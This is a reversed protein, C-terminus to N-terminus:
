DPKIGACGSGKTKGTAGRLLSDIESIVFEPVNSQTCLCCERVAFLFGDINENRKKKGKEIFTKWHKSNGKYMEVVKIGALYEAVPDPASWRVLDQRDGETKVVRLRNQLLGLRNKAIEPDGLEKLLQNRATSAPFFHEKICLWATIMCYEQLDKVAQADANEPLLSAVYRLMLGPVNTPLNRTSPENKLNVMEQAFLKVFLPTIRRDHVLRKLKNCADVFEDQEFLGRDGSAFLFDSLFGYLAEGEIRQPCVTTKVINGLAENRRSTVVLAGILFKPSNPRLLGRGRSSMESYNDVIVLVRKQKLLQAFLDDPMDSSSGIVNKLKGVVADLFSDFGSGSKDLCADLEDEILVPIMAWPTLRKSGDPTMGWRGIQCALSTKGAGGEGSVLLVTTENKSFIPGLSAATCESASGSDISVALPIHIKREFVTELKEFRTQVEDLHREVFADLCDSHTVFNSRIEAPLEEFSRKGAAFERAWARRVRPRTAFFRWSAFALFVQLMWLIPKPIGEPQAYNSNSFRRYVSLFLVPNLWLILGCVVLYVIAVSAFVVLGIIIKKMWTALGSWWNWITNSDGEEIGGDIGKKFALWRRHSEEKESQTFADMRADSCTYRIGIVSLDLDEFASHCRKLHKAKSDVVCIAKFKRDSRALLCRLMIGRNQGRTLFLGKRYSVPSLMMSEISDVEFGSPLPHLTDEDFPLFPDSNISELGSDEFHYMNNILQAESSSRFEEGGSSVVLARCGTKLLSAVLNPTESEPPKMKYVSSLLLQTELLESFGHAVLMPNDPDDRLMQVQWKFWEASGIHGEEMTLLTDNFGFVLLVEGARYQSIVESVKDHVAQFSSCEFQDNEVAFHVQPNLFFFTAFSLFRSLFITNLCHDKSPCRRNNM